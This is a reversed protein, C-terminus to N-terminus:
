QDPQDALAHAQSCYHRGNQLVAERQPLHLGCHSCSVMAEFQGGPRPNQPPAIIKRILRYGIWLALGILILRLIM